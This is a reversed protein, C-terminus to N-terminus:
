SLKRLTPNTPNIQPKGKIRKPEEKSGLMYYICQYIFTKGIDSAGFVITLDKNFKITVGLEKQEEAVTLSKIFFGDTKM